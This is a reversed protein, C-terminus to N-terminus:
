FHRTSNYQSLSGCFNKLHFKLFFFFFLHKLLGMGLVKLQTSSHVEAMHQWAEIERFRGPVLFALCLLQM